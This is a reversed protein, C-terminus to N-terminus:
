FCHGWEFHGCQSCTRTMYTTDLKEFTAGTKICAHQIYLTLEALAARNRNKRASDALKTDSGDDRKVRAMGKLRLSAIRVLSYDRAIERAINRYTDKRHNLLKDRLDHMERARRGIREQWDDLLALANPMLSPENSLKRYLVRMARIPTKAGAKLMGTIREHLPEPCERLGALLPRLQVWVLNATESLESQIAEVYNMSDLWDQGIMYHRLGGSSDALTAVRLGEKVQRFGLDIGCAIKSPHDHVSKVTEPTDVTISCSWEFRNGVRKRQVHIHKILCDDPLPRHLIIPWTVQHRKKTSDEAIVTSVTMTLHHRARHRRGRESLGGLDAPPLAELRAFSLKGTMLEDLTFGGTRRVAYKGTGDFGHFRLEANEKMAKVRAMDFAAVATASNCWWLGSGKILQKIKEYRQKELEIARPKIELKVRDRLLNAQARLIKREEILNKLEHDIEATETQRSRAKARGANKRTVLKGRENEIADLRKQVAALDADADLMLNRYAQRREREMAVLNNWLRNRLFLVDIATQDWGKVPDLLGYKFVKITVSRAQTRNIPNFQETQALKLTSASDYREAYRM